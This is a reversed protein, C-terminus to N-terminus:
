NDDDVVLDQCQFTCIIESFTDLIRMVTSRDLSLQYIIEEMHDRGNLFPIIRLFDIVFIFLESEETNSTKYFKSCISLINSKVLDNLDRSSNLYNQIKPGLIRQPKQREIENQQQQQLPNSAFPLLYIYTHLQILLQNRLLFVFLGIPVNPKGGYIATDQLYSGLSCPPSFAEFIDNLKFDPFQQTFATELQKYGPPLKVANAYVNSACIPYIIIARSWLLYHRVIQLAQALVLNSLSAMEEISRTPEYNDLFRLVFPNSGPNPVSDELFLIGHYPRIKSMLSEIQTSSRPTLGAHFMAKPEVCFGVESSDNVFVDVMGYECVDNYIDRLHQALGSKALITEYPSRGRRQEDGMAEFEDHSPQMLCIQESLYNCRQQEASIAVAIKKSLRQFAEVIHCGCSSSLIFVVALCVGECADVCWPVGAFRINNVKIEFPEGEKNGTNTQLLTALMKVPLGSTRTELEENDVSKQQESLLDDKEKWCELGICEDKTNEDDEFNLDPNFPYMFLVHEAAEDKSLIFIGLPSYQSSCTNQVVTDTRTPMVDFEFTPISVRLQLGGGGGKDGGRKEGTKKAADYVNQVDNGTTFDIFGFATKYEKRLSLPKIGVFEVGPTIALSSSRKQQPQGGVNNNEALHQKQPPSQRQKQTNNVSGINQSQMTKKVDISSKIPVTTTTTVNPQINLMKNQGGSVVKNWSKPTFQGKDVEVVENQHPSPTGSVSHTPLPSKNTQLPLVNENVKELGPPPAIIAEATTSVIVLNAAPKPSQHTSGGNTLIVGGNLIPEVSTTVVVDKEIPKNINCTGNEVPTISAPAPITAPASIFYVKESSNMPFAIDLWQFINSKVYLVNPPVCSLVITQCFRRPAPQGKLTLEGCVQFVKCNDGMEPAAKVSYFRSKCAGFNMKEIARQINERGTEEVDGLVFSSDDGYFTGIDDPHDSLKTYYAEFFQFALVKLLDSKNPSNKNSPSNAAVAEPVNNNNDSSKASVVQTVVDNVKEVM